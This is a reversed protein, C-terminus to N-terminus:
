ILLPGGCDHIDKFKSPLIRAESEKPPLLATSLYKSWLPVIDMEYSEISEVPPVHGVIGGIREFGKAMIGAGETTDNGTFGIAWDARVNIRSIEYPFSARGPYETM